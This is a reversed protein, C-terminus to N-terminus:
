PEFGQRGVTYTYPFYLFAAPIDETIAKQFEFYKNKRTEFDLIQRGEELLKDAKPSKYKTLNQSSTSHWLLYQDPDPPIEFFTLFAQYNEPPTEGVEIKVVLGANQWATKIKQAITELPSITTLIIEASASATTLKFPYKKLDPNYAWSSPSIPGFSTIGPWSDKPLAYFLTQRFSKESFPANATNFFIAAQRLFNTQPQTKLDSTGSIDLINEARRIKGLRLATLTIKDTPYFRYTFLHGPKELILTDLFRGSLKLSKLHYEGLGILGSRFLPQSLIAPLPAFSDPLRFEVQHSRPIIQVDKLQYNIDAATFSKKDHWYLDNKLTFLYTKGSDTATWSVAASPTASGDPLIKTLGFSIKEQIDTPLTQLTYNGTRGLIEAKPRSDYYPKFFKVFIIALFFGGLLGLSFTKKHELICAWSSVAFVIVLVITANFVIKEVGRRSSYLQATQGWTSGLGTGKAQLVILTLLGASAIIQLINVALRM